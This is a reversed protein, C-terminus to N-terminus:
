EPTSIKIFQNPHLSYLKKVTSCNLVMGWEVSGLCYIIFPKKRGIYICDKKNKTKDKLNPDMIDNKGMQDMSWQKDM